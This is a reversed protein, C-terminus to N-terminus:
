SGVEELMVPERSLDPHCGLCYFPQDRGRNNRLGM